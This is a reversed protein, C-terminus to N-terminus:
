KSKHNQARPHAQHFVKKLKAISNHTYVQTAALSSHGLLEKIANLDAGNDLLHTAFTHRLVHPSKQQLSSVKELYKRVIRYVLQPYIAQNNPRIFLGAQLNLGDAEIALLYGQLATAVHHGYPVIREKNGKGSVRVSRNFIDLDGAKLSVVESRRLGCGYLLELIARDRKGEFTDPFNLQDFLYETEKEKLFAPLKREFRPVKVRKAPNLEILKERQLFRFYRKASSLKRAVSRSKLGEGLLAGMWARLQKHSILELQETAYLDIEYESDLFDSLQKLDLTYAELTHASFQKEIKLYQQFKALLM